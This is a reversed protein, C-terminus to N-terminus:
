SKGRKAKNESQNLDPKKQGSAHGKPLKLQAEVRALQCVFAEASQDVLLGFCETGGCIPCVVLDTKPGALIKPDPM